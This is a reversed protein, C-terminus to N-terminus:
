LWGSRRFQVYLLGCVAVMAGMVLPYGYTWDLEPMHRFNMGYVGAILTPAAAIAAWASIKRMDENQRVSVQSLHVSLMADLLQDHADLHRDLRDVMTQAQRLWPHDDRKRGRPGESEAALMPVVSGIPALARRAEAIERKLDYIRQLPDNVVRGTTFVEGETAAVADGLSAEVDGATRVLTLMIAALVERVGDDPMPVGSALKEAAAALIGSEGLEASIVVDKCVICTLSGTHVDRTAEVYSLTPASLILEDDASRDVHGRLPREGLSRATGPVHHELLRLAQDSVGHRRAADALDDPAVVVWLPKGGGEAWTDGSPSYQTEQGM